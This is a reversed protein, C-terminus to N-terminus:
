EFIFDRDDYNPDDARAIQEDLWAQERDLLAQEEAEDRKRMEELERKENEEIRIGDNVREIIDVTEKIIEDRHEDYLQINFGIITDIDTTADICKLIKDDNWKDKIVTTFATLISDYEWQKEYKCYAWFQEYATYEYQELPEVADSQLSHAPPCITNKNIFVSDSTDTETDTDTATDTVTDTVTDTDTDACEACQACTCDNGQHAPTACEQVSQVDACDLLDPYEKRISKIRRSITARNIKEGFEEFYKDAIEQQTLGENVRAAIWEYHNIEYKKMEENEVRQAYSEKDRAVVEVLNGLMAKIVPNNSPIYGGLTLEIVCIALEGALETQGAEYLEKISNRNGNYVLGRQRIEVDNKFILSM